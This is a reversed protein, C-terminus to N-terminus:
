VWLLSSIQWTQAPTAKGLRMGAVNVELVASLIGGEAAAKPSDTYRCPSFLCDLLSKLCFFEYSGRKLPWRYKLGNIILQNRLFLPM